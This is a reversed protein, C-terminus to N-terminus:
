SSRRTGPHVAVGAYMHAFVYMTFIPILFFVACAAMTQRLEDVFQDDWFVKELDLEGGNQERIYSPKARNWFDDGGKWMRKVGGNSLITRFVKIAELVVSGQPPAKYLKPGIVVLVVPMLLYLIGPLLYALWFGV